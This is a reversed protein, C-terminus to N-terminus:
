GTQSLRWVLRGALSHCTWDDASTRYACLQFVWEGGTQGSCWGGRVVRPGEGPRASGDSPADKYDPFWADGCVEGYTGMRVLGFPNTTKGERETRKITGQVRAGLGMVLDGKYLLQHRTGARALYEWEAETTIDFPSNRRVTQVVFGDWPRELSGEIEDLWSEYAEDSEFLRRFQQQAENCITDAAVLMPGVTVEHVPRMRALRELTYKYEWHNEQEPDDLGALYRERAAVLREEEQVTFGMHFSGGPVLRFLIGTDRHIFTAIPATAGFFLVMGSLEFAALRSDVTNAVEVRREDAAQQWLHLDDLEPCDDFMGSEMDDVQCLVGIDAVFRSVVGGTRAM